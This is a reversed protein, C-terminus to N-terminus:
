QLKISQVQLDAQQVDIVPPFLVVLRTCPDEPWRRKEQVKRELTRKPTCRGAWLHIHQRSCSYNYSRTYVFSSRPLSSRTTGWACLNIVVGDHSFDRLLSWPAPFFPVSITGSTSKSGNSVDVEYEHIYTRQLPRRTTSHAVNHWKRLITSAVTGRYIAITRTVPAAM